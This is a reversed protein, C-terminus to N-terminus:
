NVPLVVRFGRIGAANINENGNWYAASRLHEMWQSGRRFSRIGNYPACYDRRRNKRDPDAYSPSIFGDQCWQLVNGEMDYLNWMHPLYSAVDCTQGIDWNNNSQGAANTGDATPFQLQIGARAAHEWEDSTPLRYGHRDFHCVLNLASDRSLSDFTYVTDLFEAKSRANCYIVADYFTVREVPHLAGTYQSPNRGVLASFHEQTVTTTDMWYNYSIFATDGSWGTSVDDVFMGAPILVMRGQKQGTYAGKSFVELTDLAMIGLNDTARLVHYSFGISDV